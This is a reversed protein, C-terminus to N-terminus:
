AEPAILSRVRDQEYEDGSLAAGDDSIKALQEPSLHDLTMACSSSLIKVECRDHLKVFLDAWLDKAESPTCSAKLDGEGISLYYDIGEGNENEWWEQDQQDWFLVNQGHDIGDLQQQEPQEDLWNNIAEASEDVDDTLKFKLYAGM